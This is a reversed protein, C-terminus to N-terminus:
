RLSAERGVKKWQSALNVDWVGLSKQQNYAEIAASILFVRDDVYKFLDIYKGSFDKEIFQTTYSGDLFKPHALISKHLVINTKIGTISYEDLARSLRSIAEERTHGFAIVKALMPDYHIPVEYDPYIYSDVRIFPGQPNRCRRIYGPSPVFTLPDEACIRAEVAHGRQVVDEQKFSLKKGLAVMIQEKVLDIGTVMETVPHEVQLRTNMEMFYFDQTIGDFIFEFTGAGVYDIAKAAKVAIEGMRTRVAQSVAPSPSEEIIKQHRRQVSCERDFLHCVNGHTDGFVQIEIHKPNSIFREIYVTDNSFYNLAESRAAQFARELESDERVLRMGKGGGGASAKIMVPYGIEKVVARAEDLTKLSGKSGPVIPVGANEMTERAMLKDGMVEINEPTPGIFKIGAKEITRAFNTNESLFGYGPHIADAKSHKAVEIIKEVNLYSERSPAPGVCYAEDALIVHLSNRDAESYVAISRIGMERCARIVRIAIEGRNAILIKKFM